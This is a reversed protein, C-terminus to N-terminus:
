GDGDERMAEAIGRYRKHFEEGHKEWPTGDPNMLEYLKRGRAEIRPDPQIVVALIASEIEELVPCEGGLADQIMPGVVDVIAKGAEERVGAILRTGKETMGAPLSDWDLADEAATTEWWEQASKLEAM